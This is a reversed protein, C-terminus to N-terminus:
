TVMAFTRMQDLARPVAMPRLHRQHITRHETFMYSSANGNDTFAASEM